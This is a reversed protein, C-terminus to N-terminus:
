RRLRRLFIAADDAFGPSGRSLYELAYDLTVDGSVAVYQRGEVCRNAACGDSPLSLHELVFTPAQTVSFADFARPDIQFVVKRDGILRQVQAVTEKLSGNSFGRLLLTAKAREAQNVLRELTSQPLSFSVFIRLTPGDNIPMVSSKGSQYGSAIKELDINRSQKPLPISDVRMSKAPDSTAVPPTALAIRAGVCLTVILACLVAHHIKANEIVWM